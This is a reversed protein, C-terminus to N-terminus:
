LTGPPDRRRFPLGTRGVSWARLFRWPYQSAAPLKVSMAAPADCGAQSLGLMSTAGSKSRPSPMHGSPKGNLMALRFGKGALRQAFGNLTPVSGDVANKTVIGECQTGWDAYDRAHGM